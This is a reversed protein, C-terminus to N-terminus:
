KVYLFETPLGLEYMRAIKRAQELMEVFDPLNIVPVGCVADQWEEPYRIQNFQDELFVFGLIKAIEINKEQKTM